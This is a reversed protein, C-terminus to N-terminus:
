DLMGHMYECIRDGQPPGCPRDQPPEFPRRSPHNRATEFSRLRDQAWDFPRDQARRLLTVPPAGKGFLAMVRVSRGTSDLSFSVGAGYREALVPDQPPAKRVAACFRELTEPEKAYFRTWQVSRSASDSCGYAAHRYSAM